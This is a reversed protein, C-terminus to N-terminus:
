VLRVSAAEFGKGGVIVDIVVRDGESLGMLGSRELVPIHLFAAEAGSDRAIFGCAIRRHIAAASM